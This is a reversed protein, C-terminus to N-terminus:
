IKEKYYHDLIQNMNAEKGMSDAWGFFQGDNTTSYHKTFWRLFLALERQEDEKAKNYGAKFSSPNNLEKNEEWHSKVLKEVDDIVESVDKKIIKAYSVKIYPAELAGTDVNEKVIEFEVQKGEWDSNEVAYSYHEDDPHLPLEKNFGYPELYNSVDYAVIWGQETKHLKGKMIIAWKIKHKRFGGICYHPSKHTFKDRGCLLCKLKM